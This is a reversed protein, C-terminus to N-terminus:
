RGGPEHGVVRSRGDEVVVEFGTRIDAGTAEQVAAAGGFGPKECLAVIHEISAGIDQVTEIMTRMTEGTSIIDDVIAVTDGADVGNIFLSGEAYGNRFPMEHEGGLESPYWKALVFPTGTLSALHSILIGGRDEEGLIVDVDDYSVQEALWECAATLLEPPCAPSQDTLPNLVYEYGDSSQVPCDHWADLVISPVNETM